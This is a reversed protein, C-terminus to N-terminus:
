IMTYQCWLGSMFSCFLITMGKYILLEGVFDSDFHSYAKQDKYKLIYENNFERMSLIYEFIDRLDVPSWLKVDIKESNSIRRPDPLNCVWIKGANKM